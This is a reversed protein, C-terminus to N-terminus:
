IYVVTNSARGASLARTCFALSGFLSQLQNLTVKKKTASIDSISHEFLM